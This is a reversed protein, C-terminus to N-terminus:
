VVQRTSVGNQVGRVHDGAHFYDGRRGGLRNSYEDDGHKSERDARVREPVVLSRAHLGFASARFALSQRNM